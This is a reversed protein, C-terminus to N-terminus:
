KILNWRFGLYVERGHLPSFSYSTDFSSSFGPATSPDNFGVLPSYDQRYNLLNQVGGYVQFQESFVKTVQVNHFSFAPSETPRAYPLPVGRENLDFVEPLAMPGTLRLTYALTIQPKKWEYNFTGM